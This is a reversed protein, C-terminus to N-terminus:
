RWGKGQERGGGRSGGVGSCSEQTTKGQRGQGLLGTSHDTNTM